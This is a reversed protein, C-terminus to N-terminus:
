SDPRITLVLRAASHLEDFLALRLPRGTPNRVVFSDCQGPRLSRRGAGPLRYEPRGSRGRPVPELTTHRGAPSLSFVKAVVTSENCIRIRAGSRVTAERPQFDRNDFVVRLRGAGPEDPRTRAPVVRYNFKVDPGDQVRATVFVPGGGRPTLRATRTMSVTPQGAAADAYAVVQIATQDGDFNVYGFLTTVASISGGTKDTATTTVTATAGTPPITRPVTWSHEHTYLPTDLRASNETIEWLEPFLMGTRDIEVSVLELTESVQAPSRDGLAAPTAVLCAPLIGAIVLAVVRHARM